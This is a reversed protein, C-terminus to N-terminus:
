QGFRHSGQGRDGRHQAAIGCAVRKSGVLHLHEVVDDGRPMGDRQQHMGPAAAVVTM